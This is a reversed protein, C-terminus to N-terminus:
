YNIMHNITLYNGVYVSDKFESKINNKNTLYKFKILTDGMVKCHLTDYVNTGKFLVKDLSLFSNKGALDGNIMRFGSIEDLDNFPKSNNIILNLNGSEILVINRILTDHSIIDNRTILGGRYNYYKRPLDIGLGYSILYDNNETVKYSYIGNSDTFCSGVIDNVHEGVDFYKGITIKINKLPIQSTREIVKGTILAKKGYYESKQCSLLLILIIFKIHLNKLIIRMVM